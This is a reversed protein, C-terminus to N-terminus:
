TPKMRFHKEQVSYFVNSIMKDAPHLECIAQFATKWTQVQCLFDMFNSNSDSSSKEMIIFFDYTLCSHFTSMNFLYYSLFHNTQVASFAKDHLQILFKSAIIAKIKNPYAIERVRM